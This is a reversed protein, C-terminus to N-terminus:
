LNAPTGVQRMRHQLFYLKLAFNSGAVYDNAELYEIARACAGRINPLEYGSSLTAADIAQGLWIRNLFLIGTDLSFGVFSIIAFFGVAVIVLSQGIQSNKIVM